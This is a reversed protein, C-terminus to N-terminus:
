TAGERSPTASVSCGRGTAASLGRQPMVSVLASAGPETPSTCTRGESGKGEGELGEGGGGM